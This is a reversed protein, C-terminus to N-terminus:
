FDYNISWGFYEDVLEGIVYFCSHGERLWIKEFCNKNTKM